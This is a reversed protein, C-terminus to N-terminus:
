LIEYGFQRANIGAQTYADGDDYDGGSEVITVSSAYSTTLATTEGPYITGDAARVIPRISRAESDMKKAVANIQIADVSSPNHTMQTIVFLDRAGATQTAVYTTDSDYGDDDVASSNTGANAICNSLAGNAITIRSDVRAGSGKKTVRGTADGPDVIYYDAFVEEGSGGTIRVISLAVPSGGNQTDAGSVTIDDVDDLTVTVAGVTDDLTADVEIYYATGPTLTSGDSGLQTGGSTGRYVRLVGGATIAVCCHTTAGDMFEVIETAGTTWVYAFGVIVRAGVPSVARALSRNALAVGYCGARRATVEQVINTGGGAVTYDLSLNAQRYRFGELWLVSM